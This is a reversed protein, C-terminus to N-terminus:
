KERVAVLTTYGSSQVLAYIVMNTAYFSTKMHAEASELTAHMNGLARQRWFVFYGLTTSM